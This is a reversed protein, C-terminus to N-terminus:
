LVNKSPLPGVGSFSGANWSRSNDDFERSHRPKEQQPIPAYRGEPLEGFQTDAPRYSSENRTRVEDVGEKPQIADSPKFTMQKQEKQAATMGSDIHFSDMILTRLAGSDVGSRKGDASGLFSDVQAATPKTSAPKYVKDYFNTLLDIYDSESAGVPALAGVKSKWTADNQSPRSVPNYETDTFRERISWFFLVIALALLVWKM